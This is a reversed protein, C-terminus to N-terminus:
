LINMFMASNCSTLTWAERPITTGAWFFERFEFGAQDLTLKLMALAVYHSRGKLFCAFLCVFCFLFGQRYNLKSTNKM